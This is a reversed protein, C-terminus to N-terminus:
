SCEILRQLNEMLLSTIPGPEKTIVKGNIKRIPVIDMYTGTLFAEDAQLLIEQDFREQILELGLKECIEIVTARTIGNLIYNNAPHTYVRKDKVMFVNTRSGETIFGEKRYQIAEFCNKEAAAQRALVNPILNLSKVDCRLWRIDEVLITDVGTEYDESSPKQMEITYATLQPSTANPFPHNRPAVGRTVQIYIIGNQFNNAVRLEELKQDLLEISYPLSLRIGKVSREFRELHEKMRFSKGNYVGTAEYIGDGFQYGRDEIDVVAEERAIIQDQKLIYQM